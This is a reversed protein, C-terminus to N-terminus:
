DILGRLEPGHERTISGGLHGTVLGFAACVASLFFALAAALGRVRRSAELGIRILLVVGSVILTYLGFIEHHRVYRGLGPIELAEAKAVTGTIVAAAAGLVGFILLLFAARHLYDRKAAIAMLDFLAAALLFAIPYHVLAPHLHEIEM